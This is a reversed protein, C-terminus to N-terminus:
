LILSFSSSLSLFYVGKETLDDEKLQEIELTSTLSLDPITNSQQLKNNKKRIRHQWRLKRWTRFCLKRWLFNNHSITYWYKCVYLANILDRINLFSLIHIAVEKPLSEFSPPVFALSFSAATVTTTEFKHETM